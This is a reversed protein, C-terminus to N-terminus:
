TSTSQVRAELLTVWLISEKALLTRHLRAIHDSLKGAGITRISLNSLHDGPTPPGRARIPPWVARSVAPAPRELRNPADLLGRGSPRIYYPDTRRAVPSDFNWDDTLWM